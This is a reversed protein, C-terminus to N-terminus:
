LDTYCSDFYSVNCMSPYNNEIVILTWNVDLYKWELHVRKLVPQSVIFDVDLTECIDWLWETDDDTLCIITISTWRTVTWM